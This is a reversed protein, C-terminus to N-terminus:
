PNKVETYVIYGTDVPLSGDARPVKITRSHGGPRPAAEYLVVDHAIMLLHACSLGSIGAGVVAIRAM